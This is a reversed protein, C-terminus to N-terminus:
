VGAFSGLESMMCRECSGPPFRGVEVLMSGLRFEPNEIGEADILPPRLSVPFGKGVPLPEADDPVGNLKPEEVAVGLEGDNLVPELEVLALGQPVEGTEFEVDLPVDDPSFEEVLPLPEAVPPENLLESPGQFPPLEVEVPEVGDLAVGDLLPPNLLLANPVDDPNVGTWDFDAGVVEPPLKEPPPKEPPPLATLKDGAPPEEIESLAPSAIEEICFAAVLTTLLALDCHPCSEDEEGDSSGLLNNCSGM